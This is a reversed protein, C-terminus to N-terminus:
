LLAKRTVTIERATSHYGGSDVVNGDNDILAIDV